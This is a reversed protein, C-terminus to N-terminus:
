SFNCEPQFFNKSDQWSEFFTSGQREQTERGSVLTALDVDNPRRPKDVTSFRIWLMAIVACSLREHV